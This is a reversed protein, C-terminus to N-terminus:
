KKKSRRTQRNPLYNSFMEKFADEQKKTTAEKLEAMAKACQLMDTKDGFLLKDTGEGFITNFCEFTAHCVKRIVVQLKEGDTDINELADTANQIAKDIREAEDADFINLELNRNMITVQAM